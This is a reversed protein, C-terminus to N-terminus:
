MPSRGWGFPLAIFRYFRGDYRFLFCDGMQPALRFHRYGAQIDFSVMEEGHKLELAHEPLTEMRMSGTPWHKSQKSLNEEFRGKRGEPGDKWLVFSLSIMAGTSRIREAEGTTVAEYIGEQCRARLDERRFALDEPTQSIPNIVEGSSFPISPQELIRFQVARCLFESAGLLRWSEVRQQMALWRPPRRDAM